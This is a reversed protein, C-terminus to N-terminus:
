WNFVHMLTLRNLRLTGTIAVINQSVYRRLVGCYYKKVWSCDWDFNNPCKQTEKDRWHQHVPRTRRTQTQQPTWQTERVNRYCHVSNKQCFVIMVCIIDLECFNKQSTSNQLIFPVSHAIFPVCIAKLHAMSLTVIYCTCVIQTFNLAKAYPSDSSHAM